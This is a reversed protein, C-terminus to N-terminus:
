FDDELGRNILEDYHRALVELLSAEISKPLLGAIRNASMHLISPLNLVEWNGGGASSVHSAYTVAVDAVYSQLAELQGLEGFQRKVGRWKNRGFAKAEMGM